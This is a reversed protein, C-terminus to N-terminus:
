WTHRTTPPPPAPPPAPQPNLGNGRHRNCWRHLLRTNNWTLPDGGLSIPIIEDVEPARDDHAPLTPDFPENPWPCHEWPCTHRHATALHRARLQRRRHGNRYRPNSM